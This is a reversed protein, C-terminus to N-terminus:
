YDKLDDPTEALVCFTFVVTGRGTVSVKLVALTM